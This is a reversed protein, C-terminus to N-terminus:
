VGAKMSNYHTVTIPDAERESEVLLREGGFGKLMPADEFWSYPGQV